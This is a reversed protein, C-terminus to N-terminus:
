GLTRAESEAMIRPFETANQCNLPWILTFPSPTQSFCSKASFKVSMKFSVKWPVREAVLMYHQKMLFKHQHQTQAM